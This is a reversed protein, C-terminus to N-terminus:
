QIEQIEVIYIAQDHKTRESALYILGNRVFISEVQRNELGEVMYTKHVGQFDISEKYNLVSIYTNKNEYGCLYICKETRDLHAGTVLYGLNLSDKPALELNNSRYDLLYLRCLRSKWDKSFLWLGENDAIIAECDFSHNYPKQFYSTQSKYKFNIQKIIADDDGLQSIPIAYVSLDRRQGFNNGFNGIYLTDNFLALSEWDTNVTGEIKIKRLIEFSKADLEFIANANGSDNIAYVKGNYAIGSIETLSKQLMVSKKLIASKEQSSGALTFVTLLLVFVIRIAKARKM